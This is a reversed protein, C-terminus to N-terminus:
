SLVISGDSFITIEQLHNVTEMINNVGVLCPIKQERAIIAAHSLIGGEETVIAHFNKLYQTISPQAMSCIFIFKETKIQELRLKIKKFNEVTYGNWLYVKGTVNGPYVMEGTITSDSHINLKNFISSAQQGQYFKNKYWLTHKKRELISEETVQINKILLAIIEDSRYYQHVIQPSIKRRSAIENILPLIFLFIGAWTNKIKMRSISIKHILDITNKLHSFKSNILNYKTLNKSARESHKNNIIENIEKNYNKFEKTTLDWRDKLYFNIEDYSTMGWCLWPYKFIHKYLTNKSYTTNLKLFVEYWDLIEEEILDLEFPEILFNFNNGLQEKIEKLFPTTYESSTIEYFRNSKLVITTMKNFISAIKKNSLISYDLDKWQRFLESQKEYDKSIEYFISDIYVKNSYISKAHKETDNKDDISM